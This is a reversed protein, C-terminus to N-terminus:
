NQDTVVRKNSPDRFKLCSHVTYHLHGHELVINNVALCFHYVHVHTHAHHLSLPSPSALFVFFFLSCSLSLILVLGLSLLLKNQLYFENSFLLQVFSPCVYGFWTALATLFAWALTQSTFVCQVLFLFFNCVAECSHMLISVFKFLDITYLGALKSVQPHVYLWYCINIINM